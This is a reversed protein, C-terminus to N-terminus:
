MKPIVGGGWVPLNSLTQGFQPPFQLHVPERQLQLRWGRFDLLNEALGSVVHTGLSHSPLRGASKARRNISDRSLIELRFKDEGPLIWATDSRGMKPLHLKRTIIRADVWEAPTLHHIPRPAPPPSSYTARSFVSGTDSCVCFEHGSGVVM